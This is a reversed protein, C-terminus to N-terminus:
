KGSEFWTKGPEARTPLVDFLSGNVYRRGIYNNADPVSIRIAGSLIQNIDSYADARLKKGFNSENGEAQAAYHKDYIFSATLKASILPIPEPYRIKEINTDASSYDELLPTTFNLTTDDTYPAVTLQQLNIDDRIL